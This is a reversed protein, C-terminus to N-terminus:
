RPLAGTVGQTPAAQPAGKRVSVDQSAYRAVERRGPAAVAVSNDYRDVIVVQGDAPPTFGRSTDLATGTVQALVGRVAIVGPLVLGELTVQEGELGQLLRGLRDPAADDGVLAVEQGEVRLAKGALKGTLLRLTPAHVTEVILRAQSPDAGPVITGELDLGARGDLLCLESPLIGEGGGLTFRRGRADEVVLDEGRRLTGVVRGPHGLRPGVELKGVALTQERGDADRGRAAEGEIAEIWVSDGVPPQHLIAVPACTDPLAGFEDLFFWARVRVERGAFPRLLDGVVRMAASDGMRVVLEGPHGPRPTVLLHTEDRFPSVLERVVLGREGREGHVLAHEGPFRRLRQLIERGAPGDAVLPLPADRGELLVQDGDLRIRGGEAHASGALTFLSALALGVNLRM